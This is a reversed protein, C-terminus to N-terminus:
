EYWPIPLWPISKEKRWAEIWKLRVMSLGNRYDWSGYFVKSGTPDGYRRAMEADSPPAPPWELEALTRYVNEPPETRINGLRIHPVLESDSLFLDFNPMIWLGLRRGRETEKKAAGRRSGISKTARRVLAAETFASPDAWFDRYGWNVDISEPPLGALDDLEPQLHEQEEHHPVFPYTPVFREGGLSRVLTALEGVERASRPTVIINAGTEIGADRCRKMGEVIADFAGPRQCLGDHTGRLGAFTFWVHRIGAERCRALLEAADPDTGLHWGDTIVLRGEETNQFEENGIEASRLLSWVDVPQPHYFVEFLPDLEVKRALPREGAVRIAHVREVAFRADALSFSQEPFAPEFLPDTAWRPGGAQIGVSMNEYLPPREAIMKAKAAMDRPISFVASKRKADNVLVELEGRLAQRARWLRTKVAGASIELHGAVEAVSLGGFYHLMVPERLESPLGELAGAVILRQEVQEHWPSEWRMGMMRGMREALQREYRHNRVAELLVNRAIALVWSAPREVRTGNRLACYARVFTEQALETAEAASQTRALLYRLVAAETERVLEEFDTSPRPRGDAM